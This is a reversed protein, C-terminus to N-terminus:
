GKAPETVIFMSTGKRGQGFRVDYGTGLRAARRRASEETPFVGAFHWPQDRIVGWGDITAGTFLKRM